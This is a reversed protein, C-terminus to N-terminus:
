REDEWGPISKSLLCIYQEMAMDGSINGLKQWANWKARASVKLAMPQPGHCPGEMAVRHLGYFQMRLNSGIRDANSKSAVFALAADFRKELETREIGEWDDLFGEEEEEHDDDVERNHKQSADKETGKSDKSDESESIGCCVGENVAGRVELEEGSDFKVSTKVVPSEQEEKIGQFNPRLKSCEEVVKEKIEVGVGVGVCVKEGELEEPEVVGSFVESHNNDKCVKEEKLEKGGYDDAESVVVELGSFGLVKGKGLDLIGPFKERFKGLHGAKDIFCDSKANSVDEAFYSLLKSLIFYVIVTLSATFVLDQFFGAEM